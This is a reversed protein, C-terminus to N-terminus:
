LPEEEKDSFIQKVKGWMPGVHMSTNTQIPSLHICQAMQPEPSENEDSCVPLTNYQRVCVCVCVCVCQEVM